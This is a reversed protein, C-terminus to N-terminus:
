LGYSAFHVLAISDVVKNAGVGTSRVKHPWYRTAYAIVDGYRLAASLQWLQM